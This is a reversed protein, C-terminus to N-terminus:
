RRCKGGVTGGIVSISGADQALSPAAVFSLAAAAILLRKM